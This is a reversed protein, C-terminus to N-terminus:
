PFPLSAIERENQARSFCPYATEPPISVTYIIRQSHHRKTKLGFDFCITFPLSRGGKKTQNSFTPLYCIVYNATVLTM